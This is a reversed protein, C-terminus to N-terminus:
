QSFHGGGGECVEQQPTSSDWFFMQWRWPVLQAQTCCSSGKVSPLSALTM